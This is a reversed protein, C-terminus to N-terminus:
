GEKIQGYIIKTGKGEWDNIQRRRTKHRMVCEEDRKGKM